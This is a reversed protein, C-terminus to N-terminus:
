VLLRQGGPVAAPAAVAAAVRGAPRGGPAAVCGAAALAGFGARRRAACRADARLGPLLLPRGAKRAVGRWASVAAVVAQGPLLALHQAGAARAAATRPRDILQLLIAAGGALVLAIAKPVPRAAGSRAPV